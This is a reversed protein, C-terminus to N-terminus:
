RRAGRAGDGIVSWESLVSSPEERALPSVAVVAADLLSAGLTRLEHVRYVLRRRLKRSNRLFELSGPPSNRSNRMSLGDTKEKASAGGMSM